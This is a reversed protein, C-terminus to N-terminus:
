DAKYSIKIQIQVAVPKGRFRAPEYRYQQVCNVANGDLSGALYKDQPSLDEGVSRAVHVDKPTGDEAVITWIVVTGRIHKQRAEQTTQPEPGYLLKPRSVGDGVHYNGDADPNREAAAVEGTSDPLTMAPLRHFVQSVLLFLAFVRLRTYRM